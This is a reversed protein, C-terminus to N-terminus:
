AAIGHREFVKLMGPDGVRRAVGYATLGQPDQLSSDVGYDLLLDVVSTRRRRVARHLGTEGTTVDVSGIENWGSAQLAKIVEVNGEDCAENFM